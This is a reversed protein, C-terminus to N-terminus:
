SKQPSNELCEVTNVLEAAKAFRQQLKLPM